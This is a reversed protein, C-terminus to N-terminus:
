RECDRLGEGGGYAKMYHHEPASLGLLAALKRCNEVSNVCGFGSFKLEVAFGVDERNFV